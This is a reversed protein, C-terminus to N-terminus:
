GRGPAPSRILEAYLDWFREQDVDLVVSGDSDTVIDPRLFAAAAVADWVPERHGGDKAFVPGLLQKILTKVPTPPGAVVREYTDGDMAPREAAALPVVLQRKFATGFVVKSAEPDFWRNFEEGETGAGVYVVEKVLPVMEPHDRVARALNTAPGLAFVTVEGPHRGVQDALFDSATGAAPEAAAYGGAPPTPLARHSAPRPRDLAGVYDQRRAPVNTAGTVVPVDTRGILELQRLAYAAGEEPWTNGGVTTVGLIEVREAAVLLFLAHADDNLQGMDADIIIKGSGPPAALPTGASCATAAGALVLATLSALVKGRM